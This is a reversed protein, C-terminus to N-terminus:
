GLAQKLLQGMRGPPAFGSDQGIQGFEALALFKATALPIRREQSTRGVPNSGAQKPKTTATGSAKNPVTAPKTSGNVAPDEKLSEGSSRPLEMKGM